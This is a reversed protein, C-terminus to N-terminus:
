PRLVAGVYNLSSMILLFAGSVWVLRTWSAGRVWKAFVLVVPFATILMRPNPPVNWSTLMLFTMGAVFVLVELPLQRRERWLYLLGFLLFVTGALGSVYNLNVHSFTFHTGIEGLLLALQHPIALPNTKEHWANHQAMYDALPTGTWIWLFAAFAAAGFPALLPALLSRRAKPDGWGNRRIEVFSAAACAPIITLADPGIGTALGALIGALLYRRKRLALLCGLVLPILLGESYDISFVVSGPFLCFFLVAKRATAPGWWQTTLRQVMVTAILGGFFSVVVGAVFYPVMFIHATVWMTMSYLPFFGLTTQEHVPPVHRLYGLTALRVYWGGDWNSLEHTISTSRVSSFAVDCILALVFLGVRTSLYTAAPWKLEARLAEWREQWSGARDPAPGTALAAAPEPALAVQAEGRKASVMPGSDAGLEVEEAPRAGVLEDRLDVPASNLHAPGVIDCAGLGAVRRSHTPRGSEPTFLDRM